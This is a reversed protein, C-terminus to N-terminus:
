KKKDENRHTEINRFKIDLYGQSFLNTLHGRSEHQPKQIEARAHWRFCSTMLCLENGAHNAKKKKKKLEITM